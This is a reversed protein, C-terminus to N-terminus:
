AVKVSFRYWSVQGGRDFCTSCHLKVLLPPYVDQLARSRLLPLPPLPLPSLTHSIEGRFFSKTHIARVFVYSHLLTFSRFPLEVRNCKTRKHANNTCSTIKCITHATLQGVSLAHFLPRPRQHPSKRMRAGMERQSRQRRRLLGVADARFSRPHTTQKSANVSREKRANAVPCKANAIARAREHQSIM